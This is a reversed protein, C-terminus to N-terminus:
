NNQIFSDKCDIQKTIHITHVNCKLMANKQVLNNYADWLQNILVNVQHPKMFGRKYHTMDDTLIKRKRCSM